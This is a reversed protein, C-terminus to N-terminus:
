FSQCFYDLGKMVLFDIFLKNYGNSKAFDICSTGSFPKHLIMSQIREKGLVKLGHDVMLTFCEFSNITISLYICNEGTFSRLEMDAGSELLYKVWLTHNQKVAIMLPTYGFYSDPEDINWGNSQCETIIEKDPYGNHAAIWIPSENMRNEIISSLLGYNLRWIIRNQIIMEGIVELEVSKGVSSKVGIFSLGYNLNFLHSLKNRTCAFALPISKLHCLTALKMIQQHNGRINKAIVVLQIQDINRQVEKAGTILKSKYNIRQKSLFKSVEQEMDSTILHHVYDGIMAPDNSETETERALIRKISSHFLDFEIFKLADNSLM